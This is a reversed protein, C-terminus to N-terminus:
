AAKLSTQSEVYWHLIAAIADAPKDTDFEAKALKVAEDYDTIADGRVTITRREKVDSADPTALVETVAEDVTLGTLVRALKVAMHWSFHNTDAKSKYAAIAEPLRDYNKLVARVESSRVKRSADSWNRLKALKAIIAEMDHKQIAEGKFVATASNCVQTVISSQDDLAEYAKALATAVNLRNPTAAPVAADQKKSTNM